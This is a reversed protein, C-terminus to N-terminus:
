ILVSVTCWGHGGQLGIMGDVDVMIILLEEELCAFANTAELCSCLDQDLSTLLFPM